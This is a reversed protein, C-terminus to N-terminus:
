KGSTNGKNSGSGGSNRSGGSFGGLGGLGSLGSRQNTSNTSVKPLVVLVKDGDKIGSLVEVYNENELGTTVKVLKGTGSYAFSNQTSGGNQGYAGQFGSGSTRSRRQSNGNSSQNNNSTGSNNSTSGNSTNKNANGTGTTVTTKDSSPVLVYKEGNREILAESPIVLANDKSESIINVNANMGLKINEPNTISVVVDYTTVNNTTTGTESISDVTGDYTKDKIASVSIKAKDGVKIKAIDLEDVAVKVKLSTMDAVTLVAKGQAGQDGTNNNKAVVVGDIPSYVTMNNVASQATNLTKQADNVSFTQMTVDSDSKANSLQYQAKQLNTSASDRKGVLDDSYSTFLKSGKTVKDGVNVNLDQLTGANNVNIDRSINAFVEGTGQVNVQMNMKRASVTYYSTSATTTTKAAFVKKYGYYGGFCVAIVILCATVAKIVKGKM